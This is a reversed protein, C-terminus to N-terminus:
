FSGGVGMMIAFLALQIENETLERGNLLLKGNEAILEIGISKGDVNRLGSFEANAFATDVEQKARAKAEDESLKEKVMAIQRIIDEAYERNVNSTFKSPSLTKIIEDYNSLNQLDFSAVNLLLALDFKGNDKEFSFNNIDFKFSKALLQLLMEGTESNELADPESFAPILDNALKADFDYAMDMKWKGLEVGEISFSSADLKGNSIFRDGKLANEGHIVIDKIQSLKANQQEAEQFQFEVSKIKASGKGLGLNEYGQQKGTQIDYSMGQLQLFGEESIFKLNDLYVTGETNKTGQDYSYEVKLPTVEVAATEDSFNISSLTFEGDAKGSYHINTIGTGLQEGLIKKLQEPAQVNNEVSMLVPSLNFKALRNLPLPGHHIKDNGIFTLKEDAIEIDLSYTADSSFFHRQIQVDKIAINSGYQANIVNLQSNAQEVLQHYKEEVQKGTYWSGGVAVAGIVAVVSTAIKTLKM